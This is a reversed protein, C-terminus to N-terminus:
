LSPTRFLGEFNVLVYQTLTEKEFLHPFGYDTYLFLQFTRFFYGGNGSNTFHAIVTLKVDFKSWIAPKVLYISFHYSCCTSGSSEPGMFSGHLYYSRLYRSNNLLYIQSCWLWQTAYPLYEQSNKQSWHRM